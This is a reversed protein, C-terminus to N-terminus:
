KEVTNLKVRGKVKVVILEKSGISSITEASAVFDTSGNASQHDVGTQEVLPVSAIEHIVFGATIGRRSDDFLHRALPKELALGHRTEAHSDGTQKKLFTSALINKLLKDTKSFQLTDMTSNSEDM